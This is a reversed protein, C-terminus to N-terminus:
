SAIEASWEMQYHSGTEGTRVLGLREFLAVAPNARMVQVRFVRGSKQAEGLLERIVYAGIGANRSPPLLAIDVIRIEREDRAVVITGVRETAQLVILQNAHPYDARFFRQQSAYQQSLFDAIRDPAWDLKALDDGRDSTFLEFLFAEDDDLAPRLSLSQLTTSL